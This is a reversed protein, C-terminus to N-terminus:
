EVEINKADDKRFSLNYGKVKVEIPDGMPAIKEISISTGRVVGMDMLRKKIPRSAKILKIIGSEGVKLDFVTKM